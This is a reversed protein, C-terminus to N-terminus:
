GGTGAANNFAYDLRGYTAVTHHVLAEVDAAQAVDTRVFLAEGGAQRIAEVTQAGEDVRRAAILVRAGAQAFMIATAKGIGANGGTVLAVKGEFPRPMFSVREDYSSREIPM